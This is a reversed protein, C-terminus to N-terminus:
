LWLSLGFIHLVQKDMIIDFALLLGVYGFSGNKKSGLDQPAVPAWSLPGLLGLTRRSYQSVALVEKYDQSLQGGMTSCLCHAAPGLFSAPYGM